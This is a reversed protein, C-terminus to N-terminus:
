KLKHNTLYERICAHLKSKNLIFSDGIQLEELNNAKIIKKLSVLNLGYRAKYARKAHNLTTYEPNSNKIISGTVNLNFYIYSRAYIYELYKEDVSCYYIIDFDIERQNEIIYSLLTKTYGIKILEGQKYIYVMFINNEKLEISNPQLVVKNNIFANQEVIYM